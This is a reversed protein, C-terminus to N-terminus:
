APAVAVAISRTPLRLNTAAPPPVHIPLAIRSPLDHIGMVRQPVVGMLRMRANQTAISRGGGGSRWGEKKRMVYNHVRFIAPYDTIDGHMRWRPTTLPCFYIGHRIYPARNQTYAGDLAGFSLLLSLLAAWGARANPHVDEPGEYGARVFLMGEAHMDGPSRPDGIIVPGGPGDTMGMTGGALTDYTCWEWFLIWDLNAALLQARTATRVYQFLHRLFHMNNGGPMRSVNGHASVQIFIGKPDLGQCYEIICAAERVVLMHEFSCNSATIPVDWGGGGQIQSDFRACMEGAVVYQQAFRAAFDAQVNAGVMLEPLGGPSLTLNIPPLGVGVVAAVVATIPQVAQGLTTQQLGFGNTGVAPIAEVLWGHPGGNGRPVRTGVNPM